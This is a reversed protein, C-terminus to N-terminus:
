DEKDTKRKPQIEVLRGADILRRNHPHEPDVKVQDDPGVVRGEDTDIPPGPSVLFSKSASV